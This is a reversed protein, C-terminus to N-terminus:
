KHPYKTMHQFYDSIRTEPDAHYTTLIGSQPYSLLAAINEQSVGGAQSLGSYIHEFNAPAKRDKANISGLKKGMIAAALGTESSFTFWVKKSNRMLPYLPVDKSIVKGEWRRKLSNAWTKETIPHLKVYAGNAVLDDIKAMDVVNKTLLNTGPLIVLEEAEFSEDGHQIYKDEINERLQELIWCGERSAVASAIEKINDRAINFSQPTIGIAKTLFDTFKYGHIKGPIDYAIDYEVKVGNAFRPIHRSLEEQEKNATSRLADGSKMFHTTKDGLWENTSMYEFKKRNSM